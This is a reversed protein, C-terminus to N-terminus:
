NGFAGNLCVCMGVCAEYVGSGHNQLVNPEFSLIKCYILM